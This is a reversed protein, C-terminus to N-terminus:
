RARSYMQTTEKNGNIHDLDDNKLVTCETVESPSQVDFSTQVGVDDIFSWITPSVYLKIQFRNVDYVYIMLVRYKCM